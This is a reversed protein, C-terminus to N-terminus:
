GIDTLLIDSFTLFAAAIVESFSLFNNLTQLTLLVGKPTNNNYAIRGIEPPTITSVSKILSAAFNPSPPRKVKTAADPLGGNPTPTASAVGGGSHYTPFPSPSPTSTPPTITQFREHIPGRGLAFILALIAIHM